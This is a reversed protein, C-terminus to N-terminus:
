ARVEATGVGEHHSPKKPQTIADAPSQSFTTLSVFAIPNSILQENGLMQTQMDAMDTKGFQKLPLAIELKCTLFSLFFYM